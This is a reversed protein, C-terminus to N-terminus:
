RVIVLPDLLRVVAKGAASRVDEWLRSNALDDIAQVGAEQVKDLTEGVQQIAISAPSDVVGSDVLQPLIESWDSFELALEDTSPFTGIKKLWAVQADASIALTVLANFLQGRAGSASEANV